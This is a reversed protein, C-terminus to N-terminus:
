PTGEDYFGRLDKRAHHLRRWVTGVPVGLMNAIEECAYGEVEALILVVRKADSLRDIARSLDSRHGDAAATSREPLLSLRFLVHAFRTLSRRREQILRAMVGHLWARADKGRGDYTKAIKMVTVFTTQVLDEADARGSAATAFRLLAPAHRDYVEALASIDGAAVRKLAITDPREEDERELPPMSPRLLRLTPVTKM